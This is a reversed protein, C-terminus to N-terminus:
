KQAGGGLAQLLEHTVCWRYVRQSYEHFRDLVERASDVETKDELIFDNDILYALEPDAETRKKLKALGHMIQVKGPAGDLEIQFRTFLDVVNSEPISASSSLVGAIHPMLLDSWERSELDLSRRSIINKYRLGIREYFAPTYIDVLAQLPEVLRGAFDEWNLYANTSLAIFGPSLSVKWQGDRNIFEHPSKSSIASLMESPLGPPLNDPRVIAAEHYVPYESRIHEQFAAPNEADIRLITPFCLQCIVEDLTNRQFVIRDVAPFTM